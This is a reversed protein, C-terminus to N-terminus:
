ELHFFLTVEVGTREVAVGDVIKPEYRWQELSWIAATNLCAHTSEIVEINKTAGETSIDYRLRVFEEDDAGNQCRVPYPHAVVHTLLQQFEPVPSNDPQFTIQTETDKQITPQGDVMRPEFRWTKVAAIAAASFCSHTSQIIRINDTTGEPTIDYAVLVVQDKAKGNEKDCEEPYAPVTRELPSAPADAAWVTLPCFVAAWIMLTCTRLTQIWDPEKKDKSHIKATM